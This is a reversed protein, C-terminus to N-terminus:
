EGWEEESAQISEDYVLFGEDVLHEMRAKDGLCSRYRMALHNNQGPTGGKWHKTRHNGGFSPHWLHYVPNDTTRHRGYLTDVAWMFSVDESGWSRFRPDMGGVCEFAERPMIQILAGWHHGNSEGTWHDRFCDDPPDPMRIPHEPDSDLILRSIAANLRYFRRYPIYWLTRHRDRASRIRRACDMIVAPDIYCDADLLVLVDGHSQAEANNMAISKSFPDCGDDEAVVIEVGPLAAAYYQELWEWTRQRIAGDPRFPVLLSIGEGSPRTLLNRLFNM